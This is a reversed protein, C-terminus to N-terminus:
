EVGVAPPLIVPGVKRPNAKTGREGGAAQGSSTGPEGPPSSKGPAAERAPAAPEPAAPARVVPESPTTPAEIAPRPRARTPRRVEEQAPSEITPEDRQPARKVPAAEVPEAPRSRTVAKRRRPEVRQGQAAEESPNLIRPERRIYIERPQPVPIVRQNRIFLREVVQGSSPDIILRVRQGRPETADVVYIDGRFYPYSPDSYGLSRVISVIQGPPLRSFFIQASSPLETTALAPLALGAVLVLRGLLPYRRMM